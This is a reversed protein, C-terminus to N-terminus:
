GAFRAAKKSFVAVSGSKIAPTTGHFSGHMAKIPWRRAEPVEDYFMALADLEVAVGWAEYEIYLDSDLIFSRILTSPDS